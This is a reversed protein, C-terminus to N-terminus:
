IKENQIYIVYNMLENFIEDLDTEAEIILENNKYTINAIDKYAEIAEIISDKLYIDKAVKYTQKIM